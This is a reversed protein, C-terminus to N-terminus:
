VRSGGRLTAGRADDDLVAEPAAPSPQVIGLNVGVGLNVGRSSSSSSSSSSASITAILAKMNKKQLMKIGNDVIKEYSRSVNFEYLIIIVM